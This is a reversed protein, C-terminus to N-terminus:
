ELEEKFGKKMKEYEEISGIDYWRGEDLLVGAVSGPEERIMRVFVPVVSEIRGAELRDLFKKKVLYIGTFQRCAVGPNALLGRFDCIGGREDVSVNLLPGRSRLALTVEGGSEGHAQILRELSLDSLIDGNYVLLDKDDELLDEINKLGGATDLLIPEYRFIIPIGRWQRDPFVREYAGACHHTNVIFRQIGADLLHDM